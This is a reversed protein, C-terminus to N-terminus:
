KVTKARERIKKNWRYLGVIFLYIGSIQLMAAITQGLMGLNNTDSFGFRSILYLVVGLGIAVKYNLKNKM